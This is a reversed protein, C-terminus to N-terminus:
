YSQGAVVLLCQYYVGRPVPQWFGRKYLSAPTTSVSGSPTQSPTFRELVDCFSVQEEDPPYFYLRVSARRFSAPENSKETDPISAHNGVGISMGTM